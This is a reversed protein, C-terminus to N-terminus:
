KGEMRLLKDIEAAILAGAKTLDKIRGRVNDATNENCSLKLSGPFPNLNQIMNSADGGKPDLAYCVAFNALDGIKLQDDLDATYGESEIQRAREMTILEHGNM